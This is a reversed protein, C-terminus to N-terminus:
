AERASTVAVGAVDAVVRRSARTSARRSANFARRRCRREGTRCGASCSPSSTTSTSCWRPGTRYGFCSMPAPSSTCWTSAARPWCDDIAGQMAARRAARPGHFPVPAPGAVQDSGGACDGTGHGTAAARRRECLEGSTARPSTRSTTSTPVAAHRRPPRGAPPGAPLHADRGWSPPSPLNGPVRVPGADAADHRGTGQPSTRRRAPARAGAATATATTASRPWPGAARAWGCAAAPEAVLTRPRGVLTTSRARPVLLGTDGDVSWRPSPGSTPRCSPCGPPSRRAWCSRRRTARADAARVRGGARFLEFLEPSRHDPRRAGCAAAPRRRPPPSSTWRRGPRRVVGGAAGTRGQARLRRRRVAAAGTARPAGHPARARVRGPRRGARPRAGARARRRLRGGPLRRDVRSQAVVRPRACSRVRHGPAQRAGGPQGRGRPRLQGRRHRHQPPPTPRSSRRCRSAHRRAAPERGPVHPRVAGHEAARRLLRRVGRRARLSSEVTWNDRGASGQAVLRRPPRAARRRARVGAAAVRARPQTRAGPQRADARAGAPRDDPRGARGRDGCARLGSGHACAGRHPAQRQEVAVVRLLVAAAAFVLLGALSQVLVGAARAARM